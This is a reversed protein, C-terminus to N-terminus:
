QMSRLFKMVEAFKKPSSVLLAMMSRLAALTLRETKKQSTTKPAEIRKM